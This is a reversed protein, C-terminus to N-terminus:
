FAVGGVDKSPIVEFKIRLLILTLSSSVVLLSKM